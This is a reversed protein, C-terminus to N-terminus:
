FFMKYPSYKYVKKKEKKDHKKYTLYPIKNKDYCDFGNEKEVPKTTSTTIQVKQKELLDKINNLSQVM